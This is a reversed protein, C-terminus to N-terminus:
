NCGMRHGIQLTVMMFQCNSVYMCVRVSVARSSRGGVAIIELSHQVAVSKRSLALLLASCNLATM